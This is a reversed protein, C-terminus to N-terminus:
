YLKRYTEFDGMEEWLYLDGGIHEEFETLPMDRVRKRGLKDVFFSINHEDNTGVIYHFGLDKIVRDFNTYFDLSLGEGQFGSNDEYQDVEVTRIHTSNNLAVYSYIRANPGAKGRIDKMIGMTGKNATKKPYPSEVILFALFFNPDEHIASFDLNKVVHVNQPNASRELIKRPIFAKLVEDPINRVDYDYDSELVYRELRERNAIMIGDILAERKIKELDEVLQSDENGEQNPEVVFTEVKSM